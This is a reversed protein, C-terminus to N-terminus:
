NEGLAQAVRGEHAELRQEADRVTSGTKLMVIAVKARYGCQELAKTATDYDVGAAECVIRKCREILKANTPKVDVMLNGSVKGLKIMAGTSLMNLVMKQATGSKMRTSGTVVEPGPTPTIAIEAAKEVLSGPNCSIGIVHAGREKAYHMAGLVDKGCFNIKKLDEAGLAENDEAGEKARFIADNGGAILGIVEGPDTSYTPPCEVADLVGLRGSTGCGSYVLRGGKKLQAAIVDVAQAIHEAEHGVAEAVKKDEENILKVMSLTSMTDIQATRSNRQETKIANLDM